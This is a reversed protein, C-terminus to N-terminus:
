AKYIWLTLIYLQSGSQVSHISPPTLYLTYPRQSGSQVSHISPITLYLTYPHQSGSQVSHISPPPNFYM